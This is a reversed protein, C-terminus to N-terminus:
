KHKLENETFEYWHITNHLEEELSDIITSYEYKIEIEEQLRQEKNYNEELLWVCLVSVVICYILVIKQIKDKM